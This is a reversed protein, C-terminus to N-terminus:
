INKNGTHWRVFRYIRIQLVCQLLLGIIGGFVFISGVPTDQVSLLGTKHATLLGITYGMGGAIFWFPLRTIFSYWALPRHIMDGITSYWLREVGWEMLAIGWGAIIFGIIGSWVSIVTVRYDFYFIVALFMGIALNRATGRLPRESPLALFAKIVEKPPEDRSIEM